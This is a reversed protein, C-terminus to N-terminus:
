VCVIIAKYIFTGTSNPITGGLSQLQCIPLSTKTGDCSFVVPLEKNLARWGTIQDAGNSATFSVSLYTMENFAGVGNLTKQTGSASLLPFPAGGNVALTESRPTASGCLSLNAAEAGPSFLPFDTPAPGGGLTSSPTPKDARISSTSTPSACACALFGSVVVVTLSRWRLALGEVGVSRSMIKGM